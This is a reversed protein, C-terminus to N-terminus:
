AKVVAEWEETETALFASFDQPSGPRVEAGMKAFSAAVEPSTLSENIAANLRSVIGAPTGAPAVVGIYTLVVYDPVGSEIMTPLEPVLANRTASSVALARLTGERLLPLVGGIDGFFMHVQGGLVGTVAEAAGKYPVHVIDTGTRLKFLEAALHTANGHGASGFNLKGPDAKAQAILQAVSKAAFAPHVVLVEHNQSLKAIPVFVKSPDYDRNNSVVPLVVLTSINGCLLTYGDPDASAVAKAGLSGAAGARNEVVVPQGLTQPLHQTLTRATVDVPGGPPFPVIMKIPRTPYSTTQGAAGVGCALMLIASCVIRKGLM